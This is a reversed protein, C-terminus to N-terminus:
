NGALPLEVRTGLDASHAVAETFEMYRVGTAFDTYQIEEAGRIAAIFEERAAARELDHNVRVSSLIVNSAEVLRKLPTTM